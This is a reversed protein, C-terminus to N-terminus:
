EREYKYQILVRNKIPIKIRNKFLNLTMEPMYFKEEVQSNAAFVLDM